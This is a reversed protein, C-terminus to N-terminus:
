PAECLGRSCKGGGCQADATCPTCTAAYTDPYKSEYYCHCTEEAKFPSLPGAEFERSVRMACNPVLGARLVLDIPEFGPAPTVSKGQLIDILYRARQARAPDDSTIAKTTPDVKTIYLTPSWISYLGSRVNEKDFRTTKADPYYAFRQKFSRFALVKLKDRQQDYLEIGAVGLTAEPNPALAVSNIVESPTQRVGRARERPVQVSAMTTILTSRDNPLIFLSGEDVWPQAGGRAGFGFAFYAEEATIAQQSSGKPVIFGYAQVAARFQMVNPPQTAEDVCASVFANSNAIDPRVGEVPVTCTPSAKDPTWAPDEEASPVYVMNQTVPKTPQAYIGDINSCSGQRLYVVTMRVAPDAANRLKQGINKLLPEQTAGLTLYVPNPLSTCAPPSQGYAGGSALLASAGLAAALSPPLHSRM